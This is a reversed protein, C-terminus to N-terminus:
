KITSAGREITVITPVLADPPPLPIIPDRENM